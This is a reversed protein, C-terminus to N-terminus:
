VALMVAAAVFGGVAGHTIAPASNKTPSSASGSSSGGSGSSSADTASAGDSNTASASNSSPQSGSTQSAVASRSAASVRESYDSATFPIKELCQQSPFARKDNQSATTSCFPFCSKTIDGTLSNSSSDGGTSIINDHVCCYGDNNTVTSSGYCCYVKDDNNLTTISWGSPCEDGGFSVTLGRVAQALLVSSAITFGLRTM